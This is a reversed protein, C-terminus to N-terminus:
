STITGLLNFDRTKPCYFSSNLNIIDTQDTQNNFRGDKCVESEIDLITRNPVALGNSDTYFSWKVSKFSIDFYREM